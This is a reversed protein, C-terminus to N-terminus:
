PMDKLISAAEAATKAQAFLVADGNFYIYQTESDSTTVTYVSKGGVTEEKYPNGSEDQAAQLFVQAFKTAEVGNVRFIGATCGTSAGAAAAFSVDKATKGLTQLAKDFEPSSGGTAFDNGSMSLKIATTGCITNPLLAELDKASSPLAFSPIAFSPESQSAEPASPEVSAPAVSAAESPAVSAVVAASTSPISSTSSGCGWAVAVLASAVLAPIISRSTV